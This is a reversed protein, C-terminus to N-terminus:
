FDSGSKELNKLEIEDNEDTLNFKVQNSVSQVLVSQLHNEYSKLLRCKMKYIILDNIADLAENMVNVLQEAEVEITDLFYSNEICSDLCTKFIERCLYGFSKQVCRFKRFKGETPKTWIENNIGIPSVSGIPPLRYSKNETVTLLVLLGWLGFLKMSEELFTLGSQNPLLLLM